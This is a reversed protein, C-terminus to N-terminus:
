RNKIVSLIELLKAEFLVIYAFAIIFIFNLFILILLLSSDM